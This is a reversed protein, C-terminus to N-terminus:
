VIYKVTKMEIIQNVRGKRIYSQDLDNIFEPSKNTTMILILYPYMGRQIEDLMQNWGTKDCVSIPMNKHQLIGTNINILTVDIEDFVVILPTKESIDSDSYLSSLTDAPQWPKFTNCYKGSLEKALLVGVMSKGTGPAGHLLVTANNTKNYEEIITKIVIDQEGVPNFYNKLKRNRYYLNTFSGSREVVCFSTDMTYSNNLTDLITSSKMSTTDEKILNEYSKSTAIMWMTYKDSYESSSIQLSIIYWYGISYGSGKGNDMTHTFYKNLRKQVRQCEERKNIIYLYIDFRRLALFIISWPIQVHAIISAICSFIISNAIGITSMAFLANM